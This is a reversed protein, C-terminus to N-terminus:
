KKMEAKEAKNKAKCSKIFDAREKKDKINMKKAQQKCSLAKVPKATAAAENASVQGITMVSLLLVMAASVLKYNKKM